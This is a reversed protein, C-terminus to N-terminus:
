RDAHRQYRREDVVLQWFGHASRTARFHKFDFTLIALQDREAVAMVAADAYGLSLDAFAADIEVARQFICSSLHIATHESATLAELFLRAAHDGIRSRLLQDVGVMVAAPVLLDRSLETVLRGALANGRM